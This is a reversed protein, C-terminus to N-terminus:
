FQTEKVMAPVASTVLVTVVTLLFKFFGAIATLEIAVLSVSALLAAIVFSAFLIVISKLEFM